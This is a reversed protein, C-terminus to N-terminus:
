TLTVTLVDGDRMSLPEDFTFTLDVHNNGQSWCPNGAVSQGNLQINFHKRMETLQSDTARTNETGDVVNPLGLSRLTVVARSYASDTDLMSAYTAVTVERGSLYALVGAGPYNASLLSVDSGRREAALELTSGFTDGDKPAATLSWESLGESLPQVSLLTGANLDVTCLMDGLDE